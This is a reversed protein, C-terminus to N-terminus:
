FLKKKKTNTVNEMGLLLTYRELGELDEGAGPWDKTRALAAATHHYKM